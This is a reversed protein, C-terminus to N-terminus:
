ALLLVIVFAVDFFARSVLCAWLGFLVARPLSEAPTLLYARQLAFYLYAVLAPAVFFQQTWPNVLLLALKATSPHAALQRYIPRLLFGLYVLVCGLQICYFHATFVFHQMFRYGRGAILVLLGVALLPVMCLVALSNESSAIKDIRQSLADVTLGSAHARLALLHEWVSPFMVHRRAAQMSFGYMNTHPVVLWALVNALVFIRLPDLHHARRGEFHDRTLQGPVFFLTRVTRLLRGDYNTLYGFLTRLWTRLSYDDAAPTKQGCSACFAGVSPSGCNVCTAPHEVVAAMM